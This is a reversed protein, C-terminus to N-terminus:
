SRQDVPSLWRSQLRQENVTSVFMTAHEACARVIGHLVQRKHDLDVAKASNVVKHVRSADCGNGNGAQMSLVRVRVEEPRLGELGFLSLRRLATFRALTTVHQPAARVSLHLAEQVRAATLISGIDNERRRWACLVRM